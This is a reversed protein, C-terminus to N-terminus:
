VSLDVFMCLVVSMHQIYVVSMDVSMFNIPTGERESHDSGDCSSLHEARTEVQRRSSGPLYSEQSGPMPTYQNGLIRSGRSDTIM